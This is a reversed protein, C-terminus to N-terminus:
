SLIPGDCDSSSRAPHNDAVVIDELGLSLFKIAPNISKDLLM